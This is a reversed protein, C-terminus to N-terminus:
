KGLEESIRKVNESASSISGTAQTFKEVGGAIQRLTTLIQESAHVQQQIITTIDVASDATIESANKISSFREGLNKANEVGTKIKETGSESTLILTDSSQQIESISDKIEKTGDIIGDALRRIESAVIHFNKGAEGATSAELEANFAIIKAQDAVSNILSVIDWINEIKDGLSKIGEITANNAAAIEHLHRVNEDLYSVGKAVDNSTKSAVSAVDKIKKSIDESLATNDEMTAVVEKVAVNQNQATEANEKSLVALSQTEDLLRYSAARDKEMMNRLKAIFIVFACFVLYVLVMGIFLSGVGKQKGVSVSATAFLYWGYSPLYRIAGYEASSIKFSYLSGGNHALNRAKEMLNEFDLRQSYITDIHTKDVLVQKDRAGTIEKDSNFFYMKLGDEITEYSKAIFNDLEIGTGAMGIPVGSEDRVVGNLWLCTIGMEPNFNINFNYVETKYLTMGYWYDNPSDPDITYSYEMNSWFEKDKDNAWFVRHSTFADSFSQFEAMARRRNEKSDPNKFFQIVTPSTALKKALAIEPQLYDEMMIGKQNVEERLLQILNREVSQNLIVKYVVFFILASSFIMVAPILSAKGFLIKKIKNIM